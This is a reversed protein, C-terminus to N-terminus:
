VLTAILLTGIAVVLAVVVTSSAAGSVAAAATAVILLAVIFFRGAPTPERFFGASTITSLFEVRFLPLLATELTLWCRGVITTVLSIVRLFLLLLGDLTLRRSWCVARLSM